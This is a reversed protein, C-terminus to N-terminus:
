GCRCWPASPWGRGSWRRSSAAGPSRAPCPGPRAPRLGRRRRPPDTLAHTGIEDRVLDEVAQPAVDGHRDRHHEGRRDRERQDAGPQEGHARDVAGLLEVAVPDLDLDREGGVDRGVVGVAALRDALAEHRGQLVRRQDLRHAELALLLGVRAVLLQERALRQGVHHPRLRQGGRQPHLQLSWAAPAAATLCAIFPWTPTRVTISWRSTTAFSKSKRPPTRLTVNASASTWAMAASSSIELVTCTDANVRRVSTPTIRRTPAVRQYVCSGNRMSATTVPTTPATIADTPRSTPLNRNM